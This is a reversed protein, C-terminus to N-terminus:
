TLAEELKQTDQGGLSVLETSLLELAQKLRAASVIEGPPTFSLGIAVDDRARGLFFLRQERAEM